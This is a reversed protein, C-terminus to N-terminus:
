LQPAPYGVVQQCRLGFATQERAGASFVCARAVFDRQCQKVQRGGDQAIAVQKGGCFEIPAEEVAFVVSLQFVM